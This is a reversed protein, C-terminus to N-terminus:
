IGICLGVAEAIEELRDAELRGLRRKFREFSVSRCQLCDVASEKQLGNVQSPVVHVMWTREGYRDKWDTLPVIIRVNLVGIEELSLVIAPRIKRIEDGVASDFEVMWIEGRRPTM